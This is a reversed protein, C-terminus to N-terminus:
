SREGMVDRLRLLADRIRSKATGLPIELATAVQTHTYGEFYALEIARRQLATLSSLAARVEDGELNAQVQEVTEDRSRRPDRVVDLHDRRRAAEASRVRDVARRHALTLIWGMPSGNVPDIHVANRWIELFVEQTVEESQAPDRVVRLVLGHVRPSVLDYLQEFAREDGSATARVLDAMDRAQAARASDAQAPGSAPGLAARSAGEGLAPGPSPTTMRGMM